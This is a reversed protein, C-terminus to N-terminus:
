AGEGGRRTGPLLVEPIKIGVGGKNSTEKKKPPTPTGRTRDPEDKKEEGGDQEVEPEVRVLKEGKIVLMIEERSLTEYEMLADKLLELEQRKTKIITDSRSRAAEVISRVESEIEQKTHSSLNKYDSAFDLSGLKESFGFQTVLAYATRTASHLDHSIGSSVREAGYVLEEASRGGMAVDIGALYEKYEMSVADMEPLQYTVGLAGGRPLITMKHLQMSGPTYLNVLAHGAEHYATMIQLLKM